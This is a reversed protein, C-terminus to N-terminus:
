CPLGPSLYKEAGGKAIRFLNDLIWDLIFQRKAPFVVDPNGYLTFATQLRELFPIRWDRLSELCDAM